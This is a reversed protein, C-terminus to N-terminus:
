SAMLKVCKGELLLARKHHLVGGSLSLRGSMSPAPFSVLNCCFRESIIIVMPMWRSSATYRM